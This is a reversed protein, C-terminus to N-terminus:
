KLNDFTKVLSESIKNDKKTNVSSNNLVSIQEM